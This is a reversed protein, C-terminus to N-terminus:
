VLRSLPVGALERVDRALHAQDAYGAAYAVGAFEMGGRAMGLARQFRLVRYLIKPGYGFAAHCRRRLQRESLGLRDALATVGPPSGAPSGSTMAAVVGDVLPDAPPGARLRVATARLLAARPDAAATVREAIRAGADGWLETLPVRGDRLADVPVGLACTAMGPRFRVGAYHDNAEIVPGTDPGAVRIEGTTGSWVLDVCGDPVVRTPAGARAPDTQGWVCAVAAVGPVPREHYSM